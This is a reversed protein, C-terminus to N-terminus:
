IYRHINPSAGSRREAVISCLDVAVRSIDFRDIARVRGAEGMLAWRDRDRLVRRIAEKLCAVTPEDFLWGTIGDVVTESPGGLSHALVPKELMMAEIVSLGFPEADVRANVVVDCALCVPSIEQVPGLLIVRESLGLAEILSVLHQQYEQYYPGGCLLLKVSGFETGGEAIARILLEQGKEPVLRAFVGFVLDSGDLGFSSRQVPLVSTPCFEQSDIGLYFVRSKVKRNLLTGSTFASNALPEVSFWSFWFDYMWKNLKLPYHDSIANPIIWYTIVGARHAAMSAIPVLNPMRVIVSDPKSQDILQAVENM